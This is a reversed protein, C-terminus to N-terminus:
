DWSALPKSIQELSKGEAAVAFRLAIFAAGIMLLAAFLYGLFLAPRSGTEILAGFALPGIV